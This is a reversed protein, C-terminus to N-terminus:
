CIEEEKDTVTQGQPERLHWDGVKALSEAELGYEKVEWQRGGAM